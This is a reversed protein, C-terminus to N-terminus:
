PYSKNLKALLSLWRHQANNRNASVKWENECENWLQKAAENTAPYWVDETVLKQVFSSIGDQCLAYIGKYPGDKIECQIWTGYEKTQWSAVTASTTEVFDHWWDIKDDLRYAGTIYCVRYAYVDGGRYSSIRMRNKWEGDDGKMRDLWISSTNAGVGICTSAKRIWPGQNENYISEKLVADANILGRVPFCISPKVPFTANYEKEIYRIVTEVWAVRQQTGIGGVSSLSFWNQLTDNIIGDPMIATIRGRFWPLQEATVICDKKMQDLILKAKRKEEEFQDTFSTCQFRESKLYELISPEKSGKIEQALQWCSKVYRQMPEFADITGNEIINWQVRMWESFENGDWQDRYDFFSLIAYLAAYQRWAKGKEFKEIFAKWTSKQKEWSPTLWCVIANNNLAIFTNMWNAIRNIMKAREFKCERDHEWVSKFWDFPLYEEDGTVGLLHDDILTLYASDDKSLGNKQPFADNELAYLAFLRAVFVMMTANCKATENKDDLKWFADLWAGDFLRSLKKGFSMQDWENNAMKMCNAFTADKASFEADCYSEISCKFNEFATLPMGRANMKLYLDDTQGYGEMDMFRFKISSDVAFLRKIANAIDDRAFFKAQSHIAELVTLMGEITPDNQWEVFFWPQDHVYDALLGSMPILETQPAAIIECFERASQRTAYSFNSLANEYACYDCSIRKCQKVLYLHLLFLTTLRQQGDVPVFVGKEVRGYVFGLDLSPPNDQTLTNLLDSIFKKRVSEAKRTQRGQAYDRQIIPIEIKYQRALDYFSFTKDTSM